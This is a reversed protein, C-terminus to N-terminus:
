AARRDAKRRIRAQRRRERRDRDALARAVVGPAAGTPAIARLKHKRNHRRLRCLKSCYGVIGGNVPLPGDCGGCVKASGTIWRLAKSAAGAKSVLGFSHRRRDAGGRAFSDFLERINM